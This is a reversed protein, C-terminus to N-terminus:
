VYESFFNKRIYCLKEHSITYCLCTDGNFFSIDMQEELQFFSTFKHLYKICFPDTKYTYCAVKKSNKTGPWKKVWKSSLCYDSLTKISENHYENLLNKNDKDFHTNPSVLNFSTSREKLACLLKGYIHKDLNIIEYQNDM